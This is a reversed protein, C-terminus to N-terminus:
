GEELQINQLWGDKLDKCRFRSKLKRPKMNHTLEQWESIIHAHEAQNLNTADKAGQHLLSLELVSSKKIPTWKIVQAEVGAAPYVLVAISGPRM